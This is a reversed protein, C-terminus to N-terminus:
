KLKHKAMYQLYSIISNLEEDPLTEKTFSSMKAGTWTRLSSPKRILMKLFEPKFYETPSFPLNLDPGVHALGDGNLSHCAFCNKTFSKFGKMVPNDEKMGAEPIIHPFQEAFSGKIEFGSLQFPWEEQSIQSKEPNEWVLYYPGASKNDRSKIGPWPDNATEFAIYAIAKKPDTNLIKEVSIPASFGDLCSFVITTEPTFKFDKFLPAAPVVSYTRSQGGYSPDKEVTLKKLSPSVLFEQRSFQIMHLQNRITLFPKTAYNAKGGESDPDVEQHTAKNSNAQSNESFNILMSSLIGLLFINRLNMIM